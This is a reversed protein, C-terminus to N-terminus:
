ITVIGVCIKFQRFTLIQGSTDGGWTYRPIEPLIVLVDAEIRYYRGFLYSIPQIRFKAFRYKAFHQCFKVSDEYKQSNRRFTM